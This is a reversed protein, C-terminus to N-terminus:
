IDSMQVGSIKEQHDTGARAESALREGSVGYDLGSAFAVLDYPYKNELIECVSDFCGSDKSIRRIYEFHVDAVINDIDGCILLSYIRAVYDALSDNDVFSM